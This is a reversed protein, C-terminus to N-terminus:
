RESLDAWGAMTRAAIDAGLVALVVATSIWVAPPGWLREGAGGVVAGLGYALYVAAPLTWHGGAASGPRFAVWRPALLAVIRSLASTLTGTVFTTSVGPIGLQQVGASQLGMAAAACGVLLYSVPDSPARAATWTVALAVLLAAEVVLTATMAVPWPHTLGRRGAALSSAVVGLCFCVLADLSHLAQGTQGLGIGLGLLVTNGTMFAVFVHSLLLFSLADLSGAAFSLAVLLLNRLWPAEPAAPSPSHV